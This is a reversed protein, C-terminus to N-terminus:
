RRRVTANVAGALDSHTIAHLIAGVEDEVAIWSMYQRGPASGGVSGSGSRPRWGGAASRGRRRPRDRHARPRDPHGRGRGAHDRGGVAPLRRRRTRHARRRATETLVESGRDGYWRDGLGVRARRRRRPRGADRRAAHDAPGARSSGSSRSPPGASTASAPARWTCWADLGEFGAADITGARPDWRLSAGTATSSPRVVPIAEHGAPAVRRDPGHRHAREIGTVAIQM